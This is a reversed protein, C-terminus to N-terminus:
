ESRRRVFTAQALDSASDDAKREDRQKEEAQERKRLEEVVARAARAEQYTAQAKDEASMAAALATARYENALAALRTARDRLHCLYHERATAQAVSTPTPGTALRRWAVVSRVKRVAGASASIDM